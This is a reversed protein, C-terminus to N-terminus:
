AATLRRTLLRGLLRAGLNFILVAIVLIASAGDAIQTVFQGLGESNTKWIYVALTTAPRLPSWPSRPDLVNLNTFDYHDPTGLGATFLLAAAEGFIRGSTVIIGTVLGPIALPLVVHRITQWKTSGLALSGSREDDPVARIAQEALRAMLPLNFITLALSGALASFGLHFADVFLILGFLGVVISPVAGITEQAFRIANTLRGVGAYEAMYIGALLGLPVTILMTLVLMYFSNWLIPGVGGLSTDSPDGFVFSLNLTGAAALLLHAIITLLLVVVAAALLWLVGTALRDTIRTNLTM